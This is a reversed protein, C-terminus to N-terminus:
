EFWLRVEDLMRTFIGAEAIDDLSVLDRAAIEEGDLALTLHGLTQGASVPAVVRPDVNVTAEVSEYRGSPVSVHLEDGLGLRAIEGEGKWVRVETVPERAGYVRHSETFRFGYNLLASAAATRAKDSATGLVVAILRRGDRVASAALCYGASETFGTKIGDVTDDRYLLKNRNPQRIGNWTFEKESFWAYVHPFERILAAALVGVDRATTYHEPNPLGTSNLFHTGTMGLRNAHQNMVAAFVDETRSVYEALAVSADNGSQIIDGKMLDQVRVRKGVEVFMRSGSTRWAKESIPVEDDLSIRGDRIETAVTYITMIKTISAPEVRENVNKEALVTGSAYDLLVYANADITPPPPIPAPVPAAVLAATWLCMILCSSRHPIRTM